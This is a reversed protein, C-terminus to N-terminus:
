HPHPFHKENFHNAFPEIFMGTGKKLEINDFLMDKETIRIFCSASPSAMRIVENQVCELYTLKKLV